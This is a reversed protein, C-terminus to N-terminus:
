IRRKFIVYNSKNVNLSLKNAKFWDSLGLMESNIILRSIMKHNFYIQIMLLYSLIIFRPFTVYIMLINIFPGLVSGQPVGYLIDKYSSSNSM